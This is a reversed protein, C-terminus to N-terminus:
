QNAPNMKIADRKAVGNQAACDAISQTRKEQPFETKSRNSSYDRAPQQRRPHAQKALALRATNMLLFPNLISEAAKLFAFTFAAVIV